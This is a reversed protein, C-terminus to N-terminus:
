ELPTGLPQDSPHANGLAIVAKHKGSPGPAIQPVIELTLRATGIARQLEALLWERNSPALDTSLVVSLVLHDPAQQRVQFQIIEPVEKLVHRFLIPSIASGDPLHITDVARGEVAALLPLGRGCPCTRTSLTGLDGIAYRIFVTGLNHLDTILIQGPQGIPSDTEVVLNECHLHLGSHYQCEAGISMFERSGYTDFVPAQLQASLYQRLSPSLPEAAALVARLSSLQIQNRQLYRAFGLLSSVYGVLYRPRFRLARAFTHRWLLEDQRWSPITLRREVLAQLRSKCHVWQSENSLPAAWLQMTPEGPRWGSWSYARHTAALRWDYSEWTRYFRVPEGSSGGTAHPLRQGHFDRPYLEERFQNVEARTLIPLRRFDEWSRIDEFRAGAAAYKRQYYPVSSFAISLLKRLEQWQYQLLQESSWWQSQELFRRIRHFSRGRLRSHWPYVVRDIFFSYLSM